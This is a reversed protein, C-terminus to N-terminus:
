VLVQTNCIYHYIPHRIYKSQLDEVVLTDEAESLQSSLGILIEEVSYERNLLIDQFYYLKHIYIRGNRDCAQEDATVRGAESAM